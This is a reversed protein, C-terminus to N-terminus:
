NTNSLKEFGCDKGILLVIKGEGWGDCPIIVTYPGDKANGM